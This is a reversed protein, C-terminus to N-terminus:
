ANPIRPADIMRKEIRKVSPAASSARSTGTEYSKETGAVIRPLARHGQKIHWEFWARVEDRSSCTPTEEGARAYGSWTVEPDLVAIMGEFDARGFADSLRDAVTM